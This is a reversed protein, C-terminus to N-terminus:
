NCCKSLIIRTSSVKLFQVTGAMTQVLINYNMITYEYIVSAQAALDQVPREIM